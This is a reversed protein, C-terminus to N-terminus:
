MRLIMGVVPINEALMNLAFLIKMKSYQDYFPSRFLYYLLMVTRKKVESKEHPNLNETDGMMCLSSIDIGGSLLWPKWSNAGFLYMSLLHALPRTIYLTEAWMRQSSLLTPSYIALRSNHNDDQLVGHEKPVKWSRFNMPPAASLKRILRGSRKLNYTSGKISESETELNEEFENLEKATSTKYQTQILAERDLAPLPPSPQIGAKNVWVLLLRLISKTIHVAVILVWRGTESWYKAASMELFVEAYQLVTLFKQIRDQSLSTEPNDSILQKYRKWGSEVFHAM